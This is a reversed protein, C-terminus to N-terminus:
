FCEVRHVITDHDKQVTTGCHIDPIGSFTSGDICKGDGGFTLSHFTPGDNTNGHANLVKFPITGVLEGSQYYNLQAKVHIFYEGGLIEVEVIFAKGQQLQGAPNAGCPNPVVYPFVPYEQNKFHTVKQAAYAPAISSAGMMVAVAVIAFVSLIKTNTM